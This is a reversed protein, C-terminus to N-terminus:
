LMISQNMMALSSVLSSKRPPDVPAVTVGYTIEFAGPSVTRLCNVFQSKHTFHGM